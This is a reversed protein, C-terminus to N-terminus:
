EIALVLAALLEVFLWLDIDRLFPFASPSHLTKTLNIIESM